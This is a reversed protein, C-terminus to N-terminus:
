YGIIAVTASTDKKFLLAEQPREVVVRYQGAPLVDSESMRLVSQKSLAQKYEFTGGFLKGKLSVYKKWQAETMLMVNVPQPGATVKVEVRLDSPVVFGYGKAEGEKLVVTESVITQPGRLAGALSSGTKMKYVIFLLGLLVGYLIVRALTLGGKKAPASKAQPASHPAAPGAATLGGAVQAPPAARPVPAGCNVCAAAKDSIEKNCEGCSILAM